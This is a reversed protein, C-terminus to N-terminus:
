GQAVSLQFAATMTRHPVPDAGEQRGNLQRQVAVLRTLRGAVSEIKQVAEPSALVLWGQGVEVWHPPAQEILGDAWWLSRVMTKENPDLWEFLGTGLHWGCARALVPSLSYWDGGATQFGLAENRIIMADPYDEDRAFRYEARAFRYVTGFMDSVSQGAGLASKYAPALASCRTEGPLDWALYKLETYEAIVKFDDVGDCYLSALDVTSIDGVWTKSTGHRGIGTMERIGKPRLNPETEVFDVDYSRLPLTLRTVDRSDLVQADVLEGVAHYIARRAVEARPRTFPLKIWTSALTARLKREANSSWSERPSIEKMLEFVRYVVNKSPLGAASAVAQMEPRWLGTLTDPDDSEPLPESGDPVYRDGPDESPRLVLEYVAPLSQPPVKPMSVHGLSAWIVQGARRIAFHRHTLFRKVYAEFPRALEPTDKCIWQLGILFRLLLRESPADPLAAAIQPGAGSRISEVIGRRAADAVVSCPFDLHYLLLHALAASPEDNERDNSLLYDDVDRSPLDSAFFARVHGDIVHWLEATPVNEVLLPVISILNRAVNGPYPFEEILDQHLREWVMPRARLPDVLILCEWAKLRLGDDFMSDWGHPRPDNLTRLALDWAATRENLFLLQKVLYELLGATLRQGRTEIARRVAAVDWEIACQQLVDGWEFYSETSEESILALFDDRSKIKRAVDKARMVNGNKRGLKERSHLEGFDIAYEQSLGSSEPSVGIDKLVDAIAAQNKMRESPLGDRQVSENISTAASICASLGSVARTRELVLTCTRAVDVGALPILLRRLLTGAMRVTLADGPLSARVMEELARVHGIVGQDRFRRFLSVATLPSWRFTAGLLEYAAYKAAKGETSEDLSAAARAYWATRARAGQTDVQNIRDLWEIWDSLQYDKRYGIGLSRTLSQKLTKLGAQVDGLRAWAGIQHRHEELRTAVDPVAAIESQLRSIQSKAWTLDGLQDFISLIVERRSDLSWTQENTQWESEFLERLFHLAPEGHRAVASILLAFIESRAASFAFWGRWDRTVRSGRVFLRLIPFAASKIDFSAPSGQRPAKAWIGAISALARSLYVIGWEREDTPDPYIQTPNRVDGLAYRLRLFRYESRMASEASDASLVHSAYLERPEVTDVLRSCLVRDHLIFLAAEALSLREWLALDSNRLEITRRAYSRSREIDKADVVSWCDRLLLIAWSKDSRELKDLVTNAVDWQREEVFAAGVQYLLRSRLASTSRGPDGPLGRGKYETYQVRSIRELIEPLTRFHVAARAWGALLDARDGQPDDEVEFNGSLEVLPEAMEFLKRAEVVYGFQALTVSAQLAFEQSSLLINGDRIHSLALDFQRLELLAQETSFSTELEVNRQQLEAWTLVIRCFSAVDKTAFSSKLALRLDVDIASIRRLSSLQHRFFEPTARQLVREHRGARVLHYIEDWSSPSGAPERACLDALTNHLQRDLQPDVAGPLSESTRLRVYVLFSNHFFYWRKSDERRFYHSFTRKISQLPGPDAWSEIWNLDLIGRIRALLGLIHVVDHQNEIQHWYCYYQKEIDGQYPPLDALAETASRPDNRLYNLVYALALPHGASLDSMAGRDAQTLSLGLQPRGLIKDVAQRSLPQVEIKRASHSRVEAQIPPPLVQDTQTGLLVFVGEPVQWPAPLDSLLSRDPQQERDIHDLGDILIITRQGNTSWDVHLQRLQGHFRDLLQDRDFHILGTGSRFHQRELALVVDHLFNVSEGRLSLSEQADPVYAYYRIVRDERNRLTHTLLSSKGSGPSGVIAIYGGPLTNLSQELQQVTAAIPEYLLEDVPFEHRSKYDLRSSWGLKALLESRSVEVINAPDAVSSILFGTLADLDSKRIHEDVTDAHEAPLQYGLRLRVHQLFEAFDDNELTSAQRLYDFAAQWRKSSPKKGSPEPWAEALFAAFHQPGDGKSTGPLTDNVSAIKNTVLEVIIELTSYTQKLKRWGDALSAILAPEDNTERTLESFTLPGGYRSWKIQFARVAEQSRLILDDVRGARPDAIRIATLTENALLPLILSAAVRYQANYGTIAAREGSSPPRSTM